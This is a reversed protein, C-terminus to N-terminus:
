SLCESNEKETKNEYWGISIKGTKSNRWIEVVCNEHIECEDYINTVETMNNDDTDSCVPVPHLLLDGDGAVDLQQEHGCRL